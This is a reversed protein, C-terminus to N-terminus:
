KQKGIGHKKTENDTKYHVTEEGEDKKGELGYFLKTDLM